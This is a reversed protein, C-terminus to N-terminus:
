LGRPHLLSRGSRHPSPFLPPVLFGPWPVQLTVREADSVARVERLEGCHEIWGM